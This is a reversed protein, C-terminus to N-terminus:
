AVGDDDTFQVETKLEEADVVRKTPQDPIDDDIIALKAKSGSVRYKIVFDTVAENILRLWTRNTAIRNKEGPQINANIKTFENKYYEDYHEAIFKDAADLKCFGIFLRGQAEILAELTATDRLASVLAAHEQLVTNEYTTHKNHIYNPINDKVLETSM